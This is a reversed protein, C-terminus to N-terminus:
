GGRRRRTSRTAPRRGRRHGHRRRRLPRAGGRHERLRRDRGRAGMRGAAHAPGALRRRRGGLVPDHPEQGRARGLAHRRGRVRRPRRRRLRPRQRARAPRGGLGVGSDRRPQGAGLAHRRRAHARLRARRRPRRSAARRGGLRHHVRLLAHARSLRAGAGRRARQAHGLRVPQDGHPQGEQGAAGRLRGGELPVDRLRAPPGRPRRLRGRGHEDHEGLLGDLAGPHGAPLLRLHM